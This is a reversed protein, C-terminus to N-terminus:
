PIAYTIKWKRGETWVKYGIEKLIKELKLYTPYGNVVHYSAISLYPRYEKLVKISGKIINIEAGEVDMKIFNLREIKLNKIEEELSVVPAEYIKLRRTNSFSDKFFSSSESSTSYFKLTTNISWLGKNIPLVNVANNIRINKLLKRFNDKDPEYSIIRGKKGVKKSCYLSIAGVYAGCDVIIDGENITYYRFYDKILKLNGSVDEIFKISFEEQEFKYIWYGKRYSVVFSTDRKIVNNYLNIINARIISSYKSKPLIDFIIEGFRKILEM